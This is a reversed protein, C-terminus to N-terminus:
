TVNETRYISRFNKNKKNWRIDKKYIRLELWTICFGIGLNLYIEIIELFSPKKDSFNSFKVAVM